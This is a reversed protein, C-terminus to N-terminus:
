KHIKNFILFAILGTTIGLIFGTLISGLLVSKIVIWGQNWIDKVTLEDINNIVHNSDLVFLGVKFNLWYLPLYTIPNSIWTGSAALIHNGKLLNALALGLVTQFGFLPFCGSFVGIALGRARQGPTGEQHWLWVLMKRLRIIRGKFLRGM